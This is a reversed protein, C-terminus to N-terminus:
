DRVDPETVANSDFKRSIPTNSRSSKRARRWTRLGEGTLSLITGKNDYILKLWARKNMQPFYIGRFFLRAVIHGIRIGIPADSIAEVAERNREPSYSRSWASFTEAKAEEITMKLPNHAM